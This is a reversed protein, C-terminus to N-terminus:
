LITAEKMDKIYYVYNPLPKIWNKWLKQKFILM